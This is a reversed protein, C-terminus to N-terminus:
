KTSKQVKAKKPGVPQKKSSTRVPKKATSGTMVTTKKVKQAGGYQRRNLEARIEAEERRGAYTQLMQQLEGTSHWAYSMTQM